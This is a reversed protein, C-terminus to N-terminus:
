HKANNRALWERELLESRKVSKRYWSLRIENKANDELQWNVNSSRLKPLLINLCVAATASVNMSETFGYMPIHMRVDANELAFTSLGGLENGLVIALKSSLSLDHISTSPLSPDTAVITYGATRLKSYCEETNNKKKRKYRILDIWKNAGKVVRRNVEYNSTNEVIHIDQLGACECSRVVASANQSQYIDELVVTIYRTRQDLVREIFEKKRDTIYQGLFSSLTSHPSDFTNM